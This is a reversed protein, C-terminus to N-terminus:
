SGARDHLDPFFLEQWTAPKNKLTGVRAMFDTYKLINQPTTSYQIEPDTIIKEIFDPALKSNDLRIYIEAAQKPNEKIFASAEDMAALVAKTIKPNSDRIKATTWLASFSGPGGLV